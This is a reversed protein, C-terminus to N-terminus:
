FRPVNRDYGELIDEGQKSVMLVSTVPRHVLGPFHLVGDSSWSSRFDGGEFRLDLTFGHGREIVMMQAVLCSTTSLACRGIQKSSFLQVEFSPLSTASTLIPRERTRQRSYM